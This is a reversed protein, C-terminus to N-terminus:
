IIILDVQIIEYSTDLTTTDEDWYYSNEFPILDPKATPADWQFTTTNLSWSNYPKPPIFADNEPDYTFNVGAFNKRFPTGGLLHIGFRTNIDTQKWITNQGYLKKLFNIGKSESESGNEQLVDNHVSLVRLVINESNLEAFSAM